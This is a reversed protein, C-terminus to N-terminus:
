NLWGLRRRLGMQWKRLLLNIKIFLNVLIYRRQKLATFFIKQPIPLNKVPYINLIQVLEQNHAIRRINERAIKRGNEKIHIVEEILAIRTIKLFYRNLRIKYTDSNYVRNLRRGMENCLAVNKEFRDAVYRTTLSNPNFRYFYLIETTHAIKKCCPIFDIDFIM